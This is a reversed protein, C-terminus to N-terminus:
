PPPIEHPWLKGVGVGTETRTDRVVSLGMHDGTGSGGQVLTGQAVTHLHDGWTVSLGEVKETEAEPHSDCTETKICGHKCAEGKM